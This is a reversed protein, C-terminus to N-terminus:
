VCSYKLETPIRRFFVASRPIDHFKCSPEKEAFMESGLVGIIRASPPRIRGMARILGQHVCPEYAHPSNFQEIKSVLLDEMEPPIFEVRDLAQAVSCSEATTRGEVADILLPLAAPGIRALQEAFMQNRFCQKAEILSAAD